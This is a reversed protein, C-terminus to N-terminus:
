KQKELGLLNAFRDTPVVLLVLRIFRNEGAFHAGARPAAASDPCPIFMANMEPDIQTTLGYASGHIIGIM